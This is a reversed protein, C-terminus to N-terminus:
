SHERITTDYIIRIVAGLINDLKTVEEITINHANVFHTNKIQIDNRILIDNTKM